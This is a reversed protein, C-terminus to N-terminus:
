KLIRPGLQHAYPTAQKRQLRRDGFPINYFRNYFTFRSAILILLNKYLINAQLYSFDRRSRIICAGPELFQEM